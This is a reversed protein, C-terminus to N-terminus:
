KKLAENQVKFVKGRFWKNIWGQIKKNPANSVQFANSLFLIFQKKNVGQANFGVMSGIWMKSLAYGWSFRM